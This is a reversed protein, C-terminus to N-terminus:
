PIASMMKFYSALSNKHGFIRLAPKVLAETLSQCQRCDTFQYLQHRLCEESEDLEDSSRMQQSAVGPESSSVGAEDM